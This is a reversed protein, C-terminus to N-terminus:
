ASSKIVPFWIVVVLAAWFSIAIFAYYGWGWFRTLGGVPEFKLWGEPFTEGEKIGITLQFKRQANRINLYLIHCRYFYYTTWLMLISFLITLVIKAVFLFETKPSSIIAIIVGFHIVSTFSLIKLPWDRARDIESFMSTLIIEYKAIEDM